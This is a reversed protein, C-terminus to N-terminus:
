ILDYMQNHVLAHFCDRHSVIIGCDPHTVIITYSRIISLETPLDHYNKSVYHMRGVKPHSFSNCCM